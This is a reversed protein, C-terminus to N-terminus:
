SQPRIALWRCSASITRFYKTMQQRLETTHAQMIQEAAAALKDRRDSDENALIEANTRERWVKVSIPNVLPKAQFPEGRARAEDLKKVKELFEPLPLDDIFFRGADFYATTDFPDNLKDPSSMWLVGNHLADLHQPSFSRFKYLRQPIHPHKVVFAADILMRKASYPFLYRIFQRQWKDM